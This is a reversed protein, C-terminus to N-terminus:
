KKTIYIKSKEFSGDKLLGKPAFKFSFTATSRLLKLAEDISESTFTAKFHLQLLEKDVVEIDVGYWREMREVVEAMTAHNFILRGKTWDTYNVANIEAYTITSSQELHRLQYGAEMEKLIIQKDNLVAVHGEKLIVSTEPKNNPASVNFETGTARVLIDKARVLFPHKKDSKVKFFAEGEISVERNNGFAAPYHIHSDGNLWVMTGDPLNLSTRSGIPSVIDVFVNKQQLFQNYQWYLIGLALMLPIVLIAAVRSYTIFIKRLVPIKSKEDIKLNLNFLIDSLDKMTEGEHLNFENWHTQMLLEIESDESLILRKLEFYDNRSYKNRFFRRLINLKEEM